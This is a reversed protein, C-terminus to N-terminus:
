AWTGFIDGNGEVMLPLWPASLEWSSAGSVDEVSELPTSALLM